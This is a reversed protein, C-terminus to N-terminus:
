HDVDDGAYGLASTSLSFAEAVDGEARLDQVEGTVLYGPEVEGLREGSREGVAIRHRLQVIGRHKRDIRGPDDAVGRALRGPDIPAQRFTARALRHRRSCSARKTAALTREPIAPEITRDVRVSLGDAQVVINVWKWT